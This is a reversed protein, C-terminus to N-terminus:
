SRPVSSPACAIGPQPLLVLPLIRLSEAEEGAPGRGVACVRAGDRARADGADAISVELSTMAGSRLAAGSGPGSSRLVAARGRCDHGGPHLIRGPQRNSDNVQPYPM